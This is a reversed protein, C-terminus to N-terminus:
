LALHDIDLSCGSRIEGNLIQAKKRFEREMM